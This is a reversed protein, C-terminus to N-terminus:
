LKRRKREGGTTEEDYKYSSVKLLNYRYFKILEKNINYVSFSKLQKMVSKYIMRSRLNVLVHNTYYEKLPNYFSLIHDIIHEPLM